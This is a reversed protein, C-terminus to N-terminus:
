VTVRGPERRLHDVPVPRDRRDHLLELGDVPVVLTDRDGGVRLERGDEGVVAVLLLLVRGHGELPQTAVIGDEIAMYLVSGWSPDLGSSPHGFGIFWTALAVVIGVLVTGGGGEM